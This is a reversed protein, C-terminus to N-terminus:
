CDAARKEQRAFASLQAHLREAVRTAVAREILPEVHTLQMILGGRHSVVAAGYAAMISSAMAFYLDEVELAGVAPEVGLQELAGLNSVATTGIFVKQEALERLAEEGLAGARAAFYPGRVPGTVLPEHEELKSRVAQTIDRALEALDRDARVQHDTNVSSVYYGVAEGIPATEPFYRRLYRRLSVPHAIRQLPTASPEAAIALSLAASVVGHVTARAQRARLLLAETESRAIRITTVVARRQAMPAPEASRLRFPRPGEPPPMAQALSALTQEELSAFLAPFFSEQAPAPLEAVAVDAEHELLALLDRMAFIGSSGDSVVHHLTLLLTSRARGLRVWVLEARPGRDAWVRHCLSRELQQQVTDASGDITRLTVPADGPAISCSGHADRVLHATLLPHRQELRRLAAVLQSETLPGLLTAVTTFNLTAARDFLDTMREAPSLPRAIM